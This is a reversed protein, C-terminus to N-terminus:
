NCPVDLARMTACFEREQEVDEYINQVRAEDRKMVGYMLGCSLLVVVALMALVVRSSRRKGRHQAEREDLMTLWERAKPHNITILVQRAQVYRGQEILLRAKAFQEKLNM